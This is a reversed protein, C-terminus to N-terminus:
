RAGIGAELAQKAETAWAWYTKRAQRAELWEGKGPDFVFMPLPKGFGIVYLNVWGGVNVLYAGKRPGGVLWLSEANPWQPRSAALALTLLSVPQAPEEVVALDSARVTAFCTAVPWKDGGVFPKGDLARVAALKGEPSDFVDQIEVSVNKPTYRAVISM